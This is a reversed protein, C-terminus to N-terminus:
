EISVGRNGPNYQTQQGPLDGVSGGAGHNKQKPPVKHLDKDDIGAGSGGLDGDVLALGGNIGLGDAVGGGIQSGEGTDQVLQVVPLLQDEPGQVLGAVTEGVQVADGGPAAEGLGDGGAGIGHVLVHHFGHVVRDM